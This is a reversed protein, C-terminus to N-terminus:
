LYMEMTKDTISEFFVQNKLDRLYNFFDWINNENFDPLLSFVDIDLLVSVSRNEEIKDLAQIINATTNKEPYAISIKTLFYQLSQSVNPPISPPATLHEYLDKTPSPLTIKNIYRVAVRSINEVTKFSRFLAWNKKANFSIDEWTTYPELRSFTFGNNRIQLVNFGDESVLRYGMCTKHSEKVSSNETSDAICFKSEFTWITKSDRFDEAFLKKIESEDNITFNQSLNARIDIVAEKIPAKNLHQIKSM